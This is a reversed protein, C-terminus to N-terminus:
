FGDEELLIGAKDMGVLSRELKGEMTLEGKALVAPQDKTWEM